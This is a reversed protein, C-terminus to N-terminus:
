YNTELRNLRPYSTNNRHCHLPHHPRLHVSTLLVLSRSDFINYRFHFARPDYYIDTAASNLQARSHHTYSSTVHLAVFFVASDTNYVLIYLLILLAVVVIGVM